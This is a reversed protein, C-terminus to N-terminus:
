VLQYPPITHLEVEAGAQELLSALSQMDSDNQPTWGLTDDQPADDNKTWRWLSCSHPVTGPPV